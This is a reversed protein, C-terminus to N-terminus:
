GQTHAQCTTTCLERLSMSSLSGLTPFTTSTLDTCTVVGTGNTYTIVKCIPPSNMTSQGTPCTWLSTPVCNLYHCWSCSKALKDDAFLIILGVVFGACFLVGAVVRVAKIGKSQNQVGRGGGALISGPTAGVVGRPLIGLNDNQSWQQQRKALLAFGLLFGAILGGLHAFNDVYPMLGLCINVGILLALSLLASIRNSYQTWNALLEAVTAGVMGFLAGSAGVSVSDLLFLSSLVAGSIGSLLYILGVRVPGFERELPVGIYFVGILNIVLHVVGAHLWMATLLRWPQGGKVRLPDLGGMDILAQVSPGLLPNERLPQFSLSGLFTAVCKQRGLRSRSPCNNVIMEIVFVICCTVVVGLPILWSYAKYFPKRPPPQPPPLGYPGGPNPYSQDLYPNPTALHDYTGYGQSAVVRFPPAATPHSGDHPSYPVPDSSSVPSDSRFPPLAHPPPHASGYAWDPVSSPEYHPNVLATPETRGEARTRETYWPHDNQRSTAPAGFFKRM